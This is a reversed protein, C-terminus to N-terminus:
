ASDPRWPTSVMAAPAGLARMVADADAPKDVRLRLVDPVPPAGGQGGNSQEQDAVKGRHRLHRLLCLGLSLLLATVLFGVVVAVGTLVGRASKSAKKIGQSLGSPSPAVPPPPPPALLSPPAAPPTADSTGSGPAPAPLLWPPPPLALMGDQPPPTPSGPSVPPTSDADPPGNFALVLATCNSCEMYLSGTQTGNLFFDLQYSYDPKFAAMSLLASGLLDDGATANPLAAPASPDCGGAGDCEWLQCLLTDGQQSPWTGLPVALPIYWINPTDVLPLHSFITWPTGWTSRCMLALEMAYGFLVSDELSGFKAGPDLYATTSVRAAGVVLVRELAAPPPPPPAGLATGLLAALLTLLSVLKSIAM